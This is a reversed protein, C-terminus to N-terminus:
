SLAERLGQAWDVLWRPLEGPRAVCVWISASIGGLLVLSAAIQLTRIFRARRVELATQIPAVEGLVPLKLAARAQDASAFSSRLLEKGIVVVMAIGFGVMTSIALALWGIASSPSPAPVPTEITQFALLANSGKRSLAQKKDKLPTLDLMQQQVIQARTSVEQRYSEHQRLVEPLTQLSDELEKIDAEMKGKRATMGQLDVYLADREGKKIEWAPNTLPKTPVTVTNQLESTMIMLRKLEGKLQELRPYRDTFGRLKLENIQQV